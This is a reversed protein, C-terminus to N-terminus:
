AAKRGRAYIVQNEKGSLDFEVWTGERLNEDYSGVYKKQGGPHFFEWTGVKESNEYEGKAMLNGNSYYHEWEGMRLTKELQGRLAIAGDEYFKEYLGSRIKNKEVFAIDQTPLKWPIESIKSAEELKRIREIILTRAQARFSPSITTILEKAEAYDKLLGKPLFEETIRQELKTGSFAKIILDLANSFGTFFAETDKSDFTFLHNENIMNKIIWTMYVPDELLSDEIISKQKSPAITELFVVFYKFGEMGKRKHRDLM